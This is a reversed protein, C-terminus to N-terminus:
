LFVIEVPSPPLSLLSAGYAATGRELLGASDLFAVKAGCDELGYTLEEGTWLSNLPAVIAGDTAAM